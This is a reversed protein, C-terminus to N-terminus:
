ELFIDLLQLPSALALLSQGQYSCMAYYQGYILIIQDTLDIMYM